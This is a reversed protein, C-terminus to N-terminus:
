IVDTCGCSVAPSNHSAELVEVFVMLRMSVGHIYCVRHEYVGFNIGHTFYAVFHASLTQRAM